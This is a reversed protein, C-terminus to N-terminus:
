RWRRAAAVGPHHQQGAANGLGHHKGYQRQQRRAADKRM